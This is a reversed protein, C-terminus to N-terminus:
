SLPPAQGAAIWVYEYGLLGLLAAFAAAIDIALVPGRHTLALTLLVFPIMTGVMMAALWFVMGLSGHIMVQVARHVDETSPPLMIEGLMMLAHVPLAFVLVQMMAVTLLHTGDLVIGTLILMAAGAMVAQVALHWLFLPSQWLDRGKAQAFLFASYCASALGLPVALWTLAPPANKDFVAFALWSGAVASAGILIWTGWVLWSRPNPKLLIYHFRDWRKLDAILLLATIALFALAVSPSAIALANQTNLDGVGFRLGSLIGALILV